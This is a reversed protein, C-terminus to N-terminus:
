RGRLARTTGRSNRRRSLARINSTPLRRLRTSVLSDKMVSSVFKISFFSSPPLFFSLFFSPFFPRVLSLFLSLFICVNARACRTSDLKTRTEGFPSPIERAVPNRSSGSQMASRFIKIIRERFNPARSIQIEYPSLKKRACLLPHSDINRSHLSSQFYEKTINKQEGLNKCYQLM